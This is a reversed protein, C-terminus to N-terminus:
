PSGENRAAHRMIDLYDALVERRGLTRVITNMGSIRHFSRSRSRVRELIKRLGQLPTAVDPAANWEKVMAILESEIEPEPTMGTLINRSEALTLPACKDLLRSENISSSM